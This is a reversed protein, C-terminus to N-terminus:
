TNDAERGGGREGGGGMLTHYPHANSVRLPQGGASRSWLKATKTTVKRQLPAVTEEMICIAESSSSSNGEAAANAKM